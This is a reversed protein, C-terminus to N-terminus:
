PAVERWDYESTRLSSPVNLILDPAYEFYEAPTRSDDGLDRQLLVGSLGAVSGRVHLQSSGEGTRFESDAVFLGELEPAGDATGGVAPGVVVNGGSGDEKRGVIAAFFGKGKTLSTRGNLYLDAGDVMLVVKRPGLNMDSSVSLDLGSSGDYRYWYAGHSLTGGSEFFGGEVASSAITTFEVDPPIRREFSSYSPTRRTGPAGEASWGTSSVSGSTGVDLTGVFGPIGPFGGGGDLGFSPDCAPLSCGSPVLSTLSGNAVVDADGVQWWPGPESVTLASAASCRVSGAMVVGAAVGTTGASVGRASVDYPVTGDSLPAVSALSSSPSFDVRAVTGDAPTVSARFTAYGGERVTASSPSLSVSCSPTPTSTPTPTPTVVGSCGQKIVYKTQTKYTCQYQQYWTGGSLYCDRYPICCWCNTNGCDECDTITETCRCIIKSPDLPDIEKTHVCTKGTGSCVQGGYDCNSSPGCDGSKKCLGLFADCYYGSCCSAGGSPSCVGNYPVCQPTPTPCSAPKVCVQSYERDSCQEYCTKRGSCECSGCLDPLSCSVNYYSGYKVYWSCSSRLCDYVDRCRKYCGDPDATCSGCQTGSYSCEPECAAGAGGPISLLIGMTAVFLVAATILKRM